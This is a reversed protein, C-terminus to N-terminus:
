ATVLRRVRHSLPDRICELVRGIITRGFVIEAGILQEDKIDDAASMSKVESRRETVDNAIDTRKM